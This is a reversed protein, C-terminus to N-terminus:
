LQRDQAQRPLVLCLAPLLTLDCILAAGIMASSLLGFQYTPLFASLVLISFGSILVTTTIMLASGTNMISNKIADPRNLGKSLEKRYRLLFHLSDDVAIGLAVSFTMATPPRISINLWALIGLVTFIPILNTILSALLIHKERFMFAMIISIFLLAIGLSNFLSQVLYNNTKLAVVTTGTYEISLYPPFSQSLSDLKKYIEEMQSSTKNEILGSIRLTQGDRSILKMQESSQNEVVLDIMEQSYPLSPDEGRIRKVSELLDFLSFFRSETLYSRLNTGIQDLIPIIDLNAIKRPAGTMNQDLHILIEFPLVGGFYKETYKLDQYLKNQPRLDDMLSADTSIDKVKIIAVGSILVPIIIFAWPRKIISESLKELPNSFIDQTQHQFGKLLLIGSPVVLISVFWAIMVGMAIELGFEQIIRISTTLLALFGIATTLSTLFIVKSMQVMTLLMVKKPHTNDTSLNERFRAQIHIADSIGIIFILTPVIYTIINIDLGVAGMFGLLWIVTILVTLLPLFVQVWNRFIFGLICILIIAIPPLFLFNDRVMYSVYETRLVSVGSYVWDPSTIKTLKKIKNLLDTRDRHNNANDTLSIILAGSKLDRSIVKSGISPDQQIYKLTQELTEKNWPSSNDHINGIFARSDVDSLTFISAVNRVGTLDTIQYVLEELEAYLKKELHDHPKYIITIINDERGFNDRFSFYREVMPDKESFLHEISFDIKLNPIFLASILTIGAVISLTNRPRETVLQFFKYLM